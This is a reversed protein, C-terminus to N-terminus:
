VIHSMVLLNLCQASVINKIQYGFKLKLITPYTLDTFHKFRHLIKLNCLKMNCVRCGTCTVVLINALM